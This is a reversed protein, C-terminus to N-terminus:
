KRVVPERRVFLSDQAQHFSVFGRVDRRAILLRVARSSTAHLVMFFQNTLFFDCLIGLATKGYSTGRNVNTSTEFFRCWSISSVNDFPKTM